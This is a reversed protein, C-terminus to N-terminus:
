RMNAKTEDALDEEGRHAGSTGTLHVKHGQSARGEHAPLWCGMVGALAVNGYGLPSWCIVITVTVWRRHLLSGGRAQAPSDDWHLSCIPSYDHFSALPPHTRKPPLPPTNHCCFGGWLVGPKVWGLREWQGVKSGIRDDEEEAPRPIQQRNIIFRQTMTFSQM